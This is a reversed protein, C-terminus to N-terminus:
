EVETESRKDFKKKHPILLLSILLLLISYTNRYSICLIVCNECQNDCQKKREKKHIHPIFKWWDFAGIIGVGVLMSDVRPHSKCVETSFATM